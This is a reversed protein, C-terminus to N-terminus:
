GNRSKGYENISIVLMDDNSQIHLNADYDNLLKFLVETDM